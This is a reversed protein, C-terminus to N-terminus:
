DKNNKSDNNGGMSTDIKPVSALTKQMQVEGYRDGYEEVKRDFDAQKQWREGEQALQKAFDSARKKKQRYKRMRLRNYERVLEPCEARRQKHYEKVYQAHYKKQCSTEACTKQTKRYPKFPLGCIACVRLGDQEALKTKLDSLNM